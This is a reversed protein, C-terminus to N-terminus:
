LFFNRSAESASHVGGVKLDTAGGKPAATVDESDADMLDILPHSCAPQPQVRGLRLDHPEAGTMLQFVNVEVVDWQQRGSDLDNLARAVESNNEVAPQCERCV